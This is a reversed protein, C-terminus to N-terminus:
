LAQTGCSGGMNLIWTNILAVGEDHRLSRGLEPMMESPLTSKMRYSLISEEPKGPVIGYKRNGTGNGAAIPLKCLGLKVGHETTPELLLGSTDASGVVNHCHSCNIDLYSRARHDLDQSLDGWLANAKVEINNPLGSLIGQEVWASIQNKQGSSYVYQKDLHRARPGIPRLERTTANTAHCGACENENPVVYAFETDTEDSSLVLKRVDGVRKLIAESEDENWVYPLALWGEKRHVM